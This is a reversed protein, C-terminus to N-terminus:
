RIVLAVSIRSENLLSTVAIFSRKTHAAEPELEEEFPLPGVRPPSPLAFDDITTDGNIIAVVAIDSRRVADIM